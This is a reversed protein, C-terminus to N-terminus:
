STRYVRRYGQAVIYPRAWIWCASLALAIEGGIAAPPPYVSSLMSYVTYVWLGANWCAFYRAFTSHMDDLLVITVQTMCSLLFVIGWIEENMVVSMHSYTPRDFTDGPWFLVVTWCFEGFALTLRSSVLDSDWLAASLARLMKQPRTM